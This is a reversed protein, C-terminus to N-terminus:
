PVPAPCAFDRGVAAGAERWRTPNGGGPEVSLGQRAVAMGLVRPPRADVVSHKGAAQAVCGPGGGAERSRHEAGSRPKLAAPDDGSSVEGRPQTSLSLLLGSQARDRGEPGM